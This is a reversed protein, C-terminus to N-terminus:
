DDLAVGVLRLYKEKTRKQTFITHNGDM